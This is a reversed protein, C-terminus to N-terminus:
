KVWEQIEWIHGDPDSFYATRQGWPQTQPPKIFIVGKPILEKYLQDVNSTEKFTYIAGGGTTLKQNPVIQAVFKEGYIALYCNELKFQTFEEEPVDRVIPLDLIEHYFKKTESYKRTILIIWEIRDM